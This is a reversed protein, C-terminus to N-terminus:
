SGFSVDPLFPVSFNTREVEEPTHVNGWTGWTQDNPNEPMEPEPTQRPMPRVTAVPRTPPVVMVSEGSSSSTSIRIIEQQASAIPVEPEVPVEVVSEESSSTSIMITEVPRSQVQGM